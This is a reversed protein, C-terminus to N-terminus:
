NEKKLEKLAINDDSKILNIEKLKEHKFKDIDKNRLHEQYMREM